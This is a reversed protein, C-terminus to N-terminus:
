NTTLHLLYCSRFRVWNKKTHSQLRQNCACKLQESYTMQWTYNTIAASTV